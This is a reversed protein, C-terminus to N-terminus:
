AEAAALSADEAATPDDAVQGEALAREDFVQQARRQGRPGRRGDRPPTTSYVTFHMRSQALEDM